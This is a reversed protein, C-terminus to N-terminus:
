FEIHRVIDNDCAPIILYGSNGDDIKEKAYGCGYPEISLEGIKGLDPIYIISDGAAKREKIECHFSSDIYNYSYSLIEGAAKMPYARVIVETIRNNYIHSFDFYTDSALYKEFIDTLYAAQPLQERSANPYCGWEGILMPLNIKDQVNKHAEFIVAIREKCSQDYLDTDVLIDYGHPTFVQNKDRAGNEDTIPQIGSMMGANSFYNTELFIM